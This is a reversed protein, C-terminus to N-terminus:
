SKHSSRFADFRLLGHGLPEFYGARAFNQAMVGAVPVQRLAFVGLAVAMEAARHDNVRSIGVADCLVQREAVSKEM